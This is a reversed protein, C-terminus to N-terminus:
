DNAAEKKMKAEGKAYEQNLMEEMAEIDATVSNFDFDGRIDRLIKAKLEYYEPSWMLKPFFIDAEIDRIRQRFYDLNVKTKKM